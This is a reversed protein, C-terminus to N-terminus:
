TGYPQVLKEALMTVNLNEGDAYLDGLVRVYKGRAYVKALRIM